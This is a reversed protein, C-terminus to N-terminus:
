IFAAAKLLTQEIHDRLHSHNFSQGALHYTEFVRVTTAARIEDAGKKANTGCLVIAKLRPLLEILRLLYPTGRRVEHSRPNRNQVETSVNWPVINWLITDERALGASELANFTNKATPDPNNRSVFNTGVAKPGPTELVVLLKANQGGDLPDFYPMGIDTGLEQKLDDVFQTLAGVHDCALLSEREAHIDPNGLSHPQDSFKSRM